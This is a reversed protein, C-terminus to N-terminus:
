RPKKFLKKAPIKYNPSSFPGLCSGQSVAPAVIVLFYIFHMRHSNKLLKDDTEPAMSDKTSFLSYFM